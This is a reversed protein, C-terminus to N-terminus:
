FDKMEIYEEFIIGFFIFNNDLRVKFFEKLVDVYMRDIERLCRLFYLVVFNRIYVEM